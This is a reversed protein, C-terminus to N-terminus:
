DHDDFGPTDGGTSTGEGNTTPTLTAEFQASMSSRNGSLDLARVRYYQTQQQSVAPLSWTTVGAATEAVQIYANDRDPNPQYVFVQYGAVDGAPSADWELTGGNSVDQTLGTPSPPPTSDLSSSPGTPNDNTSCGTLTAALAIMSIVMLM